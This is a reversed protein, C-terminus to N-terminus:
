CFKFASDCHIVILKTIVPSLSPHRDHKPSCHRDPWLSCQVHEGSHAAPAPKKSSRRCRTVCGHWNSHSGLCHQRVATHGCGLTYDACVPQRPDHATQGTIPDTPRVSHPARKNTAQPRAVHHSVPGKTSRHHPQGPPM